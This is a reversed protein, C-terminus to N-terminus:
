SRRRKSKCAVSSVQSRLVGGVVVEAQGHGGAQSAEHSIPEEVRALEHWCTLNISELQVLLAKYYVHVRAPTRIELSCFQLPPM